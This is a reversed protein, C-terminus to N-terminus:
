KVKELETRRFGQTVWGLTDHIFGVFYIDHDIRTVVGTYNLAQLLVITEQSLLEDQIVEDPQKVKVDDGIQLM